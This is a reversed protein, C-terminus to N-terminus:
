FYNPGLHKLIVECGSKLSIDNISIYSFAKPNKWKGIWHSDENLIYVVSSFTSDNVRKVEYIRQRYPKNQM